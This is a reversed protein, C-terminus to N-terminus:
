VSGPNVAFSRIKNSFRKNLEITFLLAALKSASYANTPDEDAMSCAKWFNADEVNCGGCYHHMVSALNVVRSNEAFSNMLEATLLYHGLFNSQFLLDLSQGNVTEESRGSTNRGANNILIHIQGYQQKVKSAFSKVSEFSSLDLPHLFTARGVGNKDNVAANIQQAAREAKDRSRCALIVTMGHDAVLTKATEFGIGTNSGTVIAVKGNWKTSPLTQLINSSPSARGVIHRNKLAVWAHQAFTYVAALAGLPGFSWVPYYPSPGSTLLM